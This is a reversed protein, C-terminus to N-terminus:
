KVTFTKILEIEFKLGARKDLLNGNIICQHLHGLIEVNREDCCVIYMIQVIFIRLPMIIMHLEGALHM